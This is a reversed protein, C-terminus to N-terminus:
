RVLIKYTINNANILYIGPRLSDTSLSYSGPLTITKMLVVAGDSTSVVVRSNEPLSSFVLTNGRLNMTRNNTQIDVIDLTEDYDYSLKNMNELPYCVEMNRANIVLDTETFSVVPKETLAFVTGKGEKTWVTLANPLDQSYVTNAVFLAIILLQKKM